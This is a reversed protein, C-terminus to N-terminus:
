DAYERQLPTSLLSLFGGRPIEQKIPFLTKEFLGCPVFLNGLKDLSTVFKRPSRM